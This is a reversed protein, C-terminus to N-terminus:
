WRYCCRALSLALESLKYKRYKYHPDSFSFAKYIVQKKSPKLHRGVLLPEKNWLGIEHEGNKDVITFIGTSYFRVKFETRASTHQFKYSKYIM